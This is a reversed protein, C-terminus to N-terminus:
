VRLISTLLNDLLTILIKDLFKKLYINYNM